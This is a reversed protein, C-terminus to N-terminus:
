IAGRPSTSEGLPSYNHDDLWLILYKKVGITFQNIMLAMIYRLVNNKLKNKRDKLRAIVM